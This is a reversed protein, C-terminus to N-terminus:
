MLESSLLSSLASIIMEASAKVELSMEAGFEYCVGQIGLLYTRCGIEKHLYDLMITIPLMHTSFSVGGIKDLPILSVAGPPLSLEAADIVLMTDPQFKKIEGTFNEPATGGCYVRVCESFGSLRGAILTGAADDGILESGCGLIAVARAGNLAESLLTKVTNM